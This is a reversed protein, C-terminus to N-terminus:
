PAAELWGAISVDSLTSLDRRGGDSALIVIRSPGPDAVSSGAFNRVALHVGDPSWSLPVDFGGDPGPLSSAGAETREGELSLRALSGGSHLGGITLVHDEEWLPSFRASGDDAMPATVQGTKLDAVRVVFAVEVGSPAQALYSLRAGDPSLQWDRSVGDSLHALTESGGGGLAPARALETGASTGVAFFLWADDSSFAIPFLAAEVAAIQTTTGDLAVRLLQSGVSGDERWQLRRTIVADGRGSWVPTALLDVGEALQRTAGDAVDLTWLEAATASTAAADPPLVTYAVRAGDPSLTPAIGYGVAHSVSAIKVREQPDDPDAAWLTDATDGFESFVVLPGARQVLSDLRQATAQEDQARGPLGYIGGLTLLLIAAAIAAVLLSRVLGSLRVGSVVAATVTRPFRM